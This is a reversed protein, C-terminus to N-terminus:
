MVYLIYKRLAKDVTGKGKYSNYYLKWYEALGQLDTAEPLKTKVRLYHVRAMAIQYALNYVMEEDQYLSQYEMVRKMLTPHYVLYNDKIDQETSPEMQWIGRANGAGKQYLYEGMNSEVAATMMLLEEANKSYLNINQLVEKILRRIEEKNIGMLFRKYRRGKAKDVKIRPSILVIEKNIYGLDMEDIVVQKGNHIIRGVKKFRVLDEAVHLSKGM